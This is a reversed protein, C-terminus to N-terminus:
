TQKGRLATVGLWAIGVANDTSLHPPAFFLRAGVAPHELRACLLARLLSNGAVGGVLLVAQIGTALVAPRLVKELTRAICAFVARAVAGKDKGQELLRLAATTPGSFSVDYGRAFSPLTLADQATRALAELQPGAPFPLGLAVGVRDVFQGANLDLTGGLPTVKFGPGDQEVKLLETTGGSLHVALFLREQPGAAGLQGAALHGEQHSFGFTPVKLVAALSRALNTGATFVPLYSEKERRPGSSFAIGAIPGGLASVIQGLLEPLNQWHQFLAAQQRLGIEGAPVALLRRADGM